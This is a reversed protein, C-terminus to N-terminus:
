SMMESMLEKIMKQIEKESLNDFKKYFERKTM